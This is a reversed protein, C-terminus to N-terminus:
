FFRFRNDKVEAHKKIAEDISYDERGSRQQTLQTKYVNYDAIEPAPTESIVEVIAVGNEGKFPASRKGKQLGFIKGVAVPEYGM